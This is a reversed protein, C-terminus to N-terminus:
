RVHFLTRTQVSTRSRATVFFPGPALDSANIRINVVQNADPLGSFLDMVKRGTLDFLSVVVRERGGATLVISAEDAFPNPTVESLLFEGTRTVAVEIVESYRYAGASGAFRLRFAHKGPQLRGTRYSYDSGPGRAIVSGVSEWASRGPRRAQIEFSGTYDEAATTWDAMAYHGDLLVRFYVLEIPLTGNVGTM